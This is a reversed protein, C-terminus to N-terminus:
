PCIAQVYTRKPKPQIHWVSLGMAAGVRHVPCLKEVMSHIWHITVAFRSVLLNTRKMRLTSIQGQVLGIGYWVRARTKATRASPM